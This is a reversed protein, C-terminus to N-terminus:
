KRWDTKELRRVTLSKELLAGAKSGMLERLLGVTMRSPIGHPNMIVDPRIGDMTFPMDEEPVILGCVGKQGHRSSFKDGSFLLGFHLKERYVVAKRKDSISPAPLSLM